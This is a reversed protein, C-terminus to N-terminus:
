ISALNSLGGAIGAVVGVALVSGALRPRQKALIAVTIAVYAIVALKLIALARLDFAEAIMVVLPNLEAALGHRRTMALFSVFDFAQAAALAAVTLVAPM